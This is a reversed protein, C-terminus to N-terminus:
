AAERSAIWKAGFGPEAFAVQDAPRPLSQIPEGTAGDLVLEGSAVPGEDLWREARLWSAPLATFRYRADPDPEAARLAAYARAGAIIAEADGGAKLTAAFAKAAAGKAERKPYARWFRAFADDGARNAQENPRGARKPTTIGIKPQDLGFLDDNRDESKDGSPSLYLSNLEISNKENSNTSCDQSSAPLLNAPIGAASKGPDRDQTRAPKSPANTETNLRYQASHGPGGATLRVLHGANVLANLGRRVTDISARIDKALTDQSPWAIGSQNNIYRIMVIALRVAMCPLSVDRAVLALWDLRQVRSPAQAPSKIETDTM